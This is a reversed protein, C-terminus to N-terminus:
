RWLGALVFRENYLEFLDIATWQAAILRSGPYLDVPAKKGNLPAQRVVPRDREITTYIASRGDASIVGSEYDDASDDLMILDGGPKLTAVYLAMDDRADERGALLLKNGSLNLLQLHDWEEAIFFGPTTGDLTAIFLSQRDDEDVPVLFLRDDGPPNYTWMTTYPGDDFLTTTPLDPRSLDVSTLVAMDSDTIGGVFMRSKDSTFALNPIGGTSAVEILKNTKLDFISVEYTSSYSERSLIVVMPKGPIRVAGLEPAEIIPNDSASTYLGYTDKSSHAVYYITDNDIFGVMDIWDFDDSEFLENGEVDLLLVARGYSYAIRSANPSVAFLDSWVNKLLDVENKGSLDQATVTVEGSSNRKVSVIHKGDDSLGCFDSRRGVRTAKEGPKAISCSIAFDDDAIYSTLILLDQTGALPFATSFDDESRATTIVPEKAGIKYDLMTPLQAENLFFTILRNTGPLFDGNLHVETGSDRYDTDYRGSMMGWKSILGGNYGVAGISYRLGDVNEAIVTAKDIDDGMKLVSLDASGGRRETALLIYNGSRKAPAGGGGGGGTLRPLLFYAGVALVVLLLVGGLLLPLRRSSKGPQTQSEPQQPAPAADTTALPQGCQLCFRNGDPNERGCNTCFM